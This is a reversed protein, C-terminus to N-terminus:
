PMRRNNNKAAVLLWNLASDYDHRVEPYDDDVVPTMTIRRYQKALEAVADFESNQLAMRDMVGEKDKPEAVAIADGSEAIRTSAKVRVSLRNFKDIVAVALNVGIRYALIDLYIMVDALEDAAEVLFEVGDIDGRVRKKHLNAYEGIEGVLAELWQADSWDSGDPMSHALDGRKNRFQPLRHLNAARLVSFKLDDSM